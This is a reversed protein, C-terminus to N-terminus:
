ILSISPVRVNEIPDKLYATTIVGEFLRIENENWRAQCHYSMNDREDAEHDDDLSEHKM